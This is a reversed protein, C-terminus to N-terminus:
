FSDFYIQDPALSASTLSLLVSLLASTIPSIYQSTSLHPSLYPCLSISWTWYYVLCQSLLIKQYDPM